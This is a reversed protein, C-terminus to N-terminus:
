NVAIVLLLPNRRLEEISNDQALLNKIKADSPILEAPMQWDKMCSKVADSESQLKGQIRADADSPETAVSVVRDLFSRKSNGLRDFRAAFGRMKMDLVYDHYDDFYGQLKKIYAKSSLGGYSEQVFRQDCSGNARLYNIADAEYGGEFDTPFLTTSASGIAAEIGSTRFKYNTDGHSFRYADVMQAATYAYCTGIGDQDLASVHEM